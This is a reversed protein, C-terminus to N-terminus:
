CVVVGLLRINQLTQQILALRAAPDVNQGGRTRKTASQLRILAANPHVATKSRQRVRVLLRQAPRTVSCM